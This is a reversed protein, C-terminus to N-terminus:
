QRIAHARPPAPSAPLCRHLSRTGIRSQRSSCCERRGHTNSLAPALPPAHPRWGAPGPLWAPSTHVPPPWCSQAASAAPTRCPMGSPGRTLQGIRQLLLQRWGCCMINLRGWGEATCHWPRLSDLLLVKQARGGCCQCCTRLAARLRRAQIQIVWSDAPQASWCRLRIEAEAVSRCKENQAANAASVGMAMLRM